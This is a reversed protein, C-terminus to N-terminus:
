VRSGKGKPGPHKARSKVYNMTAAYGTAVWCLSLGMCRLSRRLAKGAAAAVAKAAGAM